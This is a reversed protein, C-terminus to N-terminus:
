LINEDINIDEMEFDSSNLLEEIENLDSEIGDLNLDEVSDVEEVNTDNQTCGIILFMSIILITAIIKLKM